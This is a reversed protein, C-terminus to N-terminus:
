FFGVADQERAVAESTESTERAHISSRIRARVKRRSRAALAQARELIWEAHSPGHGCTARRVRMHSLHVKQSATTCSASARACAVHASM